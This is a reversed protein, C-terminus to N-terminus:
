SEINIALKGKPFGLDFVIERFYEANWYAEIEKSCDFFITIVGM